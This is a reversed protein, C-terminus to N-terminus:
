CCHDQGQGQATAAAVELEFKHRAARQKDELQIKVANAEDWRAQEMLRQDPRHRSDTPAVGEEMENLQVAFETFHYCADLEPSYHTNRM